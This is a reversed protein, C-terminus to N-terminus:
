PNRRAGAGRDDNDSRDGRDSRSSAALADAVGVLDTGALEPLCCGALPAARARWAPAIALHGGLAGALAGTLAPASDALPALCAAASVAPGLAGGAAGTLAFAAGLTAQAATGYSYVHDCCVAELAPVLDFPQAPAAREVEALAEGVVANIASGAPLHATGAALAEAPGAGGVAAAVAAAMARAASVGDGSNTVEADAQADDAAGEPDGPRAAGFAVARVAAADDFFHPNDHGTHPPRAGRALNDLATRVSIRARVDARGALAAFAEARDTGIGLATWALWEADDSPGMALPAVPQNLAFPVPLTTVRHEEAFLDLERGLRRTWPALLASRHRGAPWGVADGIALGAFAGRVRDAVSGPADAGPGGTGTAAKPQTGGGHAPNDGTTM